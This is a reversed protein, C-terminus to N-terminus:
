SKEKSLNLLATHCRNMGGRARSMNRREDDDKEATLEHAHKFKIEFILDCCKDITDKEMAQLAETALNICDTETLGFTGEFYKKAMENAKSM